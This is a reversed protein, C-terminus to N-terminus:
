IDMFASMTDKGVIGDDEIGYDRQYNKLAFQTNKGFKGDPNNGKFIPEGNEGEYGFGDLETQIFKVIDGSDGLKVVGKGNKVDEPTLTNQKFKSGGYQKGDIVIGGNSIKWNGKKEPKSDKVFYRGNSYFTLVNDGVKFMHGDKGTLGLTKGFVKTLERVNRNDSMVESPKRVQKETANIANNLQELKEDPIEDIVENVRGLLENYIESSFNAIMDAIQKVESKQRHEDDGYYHVYLKDAGIYPGAVNVGINFGLKSLNYAFVSLWRLSKNKIANKITQKASVKLLKAYSAGNESIDKMAAQLSKKEASTITGKAYKEILKKIGKTGYKSMLSKIGRGILKFEPIITLAAMMLASHSDGDRYYLAADAMGAAISAGYFFPAAPGTFPAILMTGIEIVGLVSHLDVDKFDDKGLAKLNEDYTMGRPTMFPKEGMQEEINENLTKSSDYNMKLLIDKLIQENRVM